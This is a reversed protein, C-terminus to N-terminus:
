ENAGTSYKLSAKLLGSNTRFAHVILKLARFQM